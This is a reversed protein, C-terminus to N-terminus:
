AIDASRECFLQNTRLVREGGTKKKETEKGKKGTSKEEKRNKIDAPRKCFLQDTRLM